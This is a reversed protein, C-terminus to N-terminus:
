IDVLVVRAITNRMLAIVGGDGPIDRDLWTLEGPCVFEIQSIYFRFIRVGAWWSIGALWAIRMFRHM